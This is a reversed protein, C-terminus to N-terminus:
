RQAGRRQKFLTDKKAYEAHPDKAPIGDLVSPDPMRKRAVSKAKKVM